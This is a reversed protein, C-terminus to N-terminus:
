LYVQTEDIKGRLQKLYWSPKEKARYCFDGLIYVQDDDTVRANWNEILTRDMEEVTAFPRRQSVRTTIDATAGRCMGSAKMM